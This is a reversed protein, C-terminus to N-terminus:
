WVLAYTATAADSKTTGSPELTNERSAGARGNLRQLLVKWDAPSRLASSDIVLGPPTALSCPSSGYHLLGPSQRSFLSPLATSALTTQTGPTLKLPPASAWLTVLSPNSTPSTHTWPWIHSILCSTPTTEQRHSAANPRAVKLRHQNASFTIRWRNLYKLCLWVNPTRECLAATSCVWTQSTRQQIM